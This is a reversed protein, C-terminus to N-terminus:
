AQRLHQRIAAMKWFDARAKQSEAGVTPRALNPDYEEIAAAIAAIKHYSKEISLGGQFEDEIFSTNFNGSVFSRNEMVRQHFPLTTKIGEICFEKLARAMREISEDRDKGWVILKAVLPDYFPTVELGSYLSSDLRVGPGGPEIIRTIVGVSPLFNDFPNEASIRCEIASGWWRIDEQSVALKEGAAISIQEKVLDLGTVMETVPHEVQLRANVELFYYNMERDVLFEITGANNYRTAKVAQVAVEGMKQRLEGTMVPSPSEEILKQHRRQISCEREGLHVMNGHNDALFQFEIHRPKDLYKELYLSPDGFASKAEERTEKFVSLLEEEERVIRMGKGGGGASAKLIVPFGLGRAKEVAERSNEVDWRLGPIVPVGAEAMTRRSATKSGVLAMVESRPGIFIVGDDECMKVFEPNEALFGYGPHIADAKSRRAMEIIKDMALYSEVSPAPGICFANDAYRVHLANRDVESYLAVTEIGM